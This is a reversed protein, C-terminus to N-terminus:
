FTLIAAEAGDAGTMAIDGKLYASITDLPVAATDGDAISSFDYGGSVDVTGVGAVNVSDQGDGDINPTVPGGSTNNILLVAGPTYAFDDSATLTTWTVARDGSGTMSTPTVTAM